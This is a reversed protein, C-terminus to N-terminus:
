RRGAGALGDSGCRQASRDARSPLVRGVRDEDQAVQEFDPYAVVHRWLGAELGSRTPTARRRRAFAAQGETICPLRSKRSPASNAVSLPMVRSASGQTSTVAQLTRQSSDCPSASHRSSPGVLAKAGLHAASAQCCSKRPAAPVAGPQSRRRIRAVGAVCAVGCRRAIAVHVGGSRACPQAVRPRQWASGRACGGGPRGRGPGPKRRTMYQTVPIAGGARRTGLHQTSVVCPRCRMGTAPSQISQAPQKAAHRSSGGSRGDGVRQPLRHKSRSVGEQARSSECPARSRSSAACNRAPLSNLPAAPQSTVVPHGHGDGRLGHQRQAPAQCCRQRLAPSTRRSRRCRPAGRRPPPGARSSPRCRPRAGAVALHQGALGHLAPRHHQGPHVHSSPRAVALM